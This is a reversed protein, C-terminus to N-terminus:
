CIIKNFDEKVIYYSAHDRWKGNILLYKENIGILKFGCRRLVNRSKENDVLASAEIRHLECEEFSYKLVIMVAQKMYGKGCENKDMSYGMIGSRFSGYVINSVKIKGILQDEKFIGLEISAGNMFQKYSEILIKRQFNITYFDSERIPEFPALHEKNRIYYELLDKANAPTLNKVVIDKGQLEINSYKLGDEYEIRTIGLLFEDIYEENKFENQSMIGELNFGLDLFPNIDLNECVTINVKFIKVNKFVARLICILADRLLSYEYQKYYKLEIDCRKKINDISIINFRGLVINHLDKILYESENSKDAEIKVILNSNM